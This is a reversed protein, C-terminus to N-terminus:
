VSGVEAPITATPEPGSYSRLNSRWSDPNKKFQEAGRAGLLLKREKESAASLMKKAGGGSFDGGDPAEIVDDLVCLCHPHAPYRPVKGPPYVGKGMGYLNAGANFDCIDYKFHRTSLMWKIGVVDPDAEAEKVRAAGYVRAGETRAIREANYRAKANVARGIAKDLTQMNFKEAQAVLNKYAKQLYTTPAGSKALREINRQAKKVAGAFNKFAAADGGAVRRAAKVVDFAYEGVDGKILRDATLSRAMLSFSNGVSIQRGLESAIIKVYDRRATKQSLTLKDGRYHKELIWKKFTLESPITVGAGAAVAVLVDLLIADMQAAFATARIAESVARDASWGRALGRRIAAILAPSKKQWIRGFEDLEAAAPNRKEIVM